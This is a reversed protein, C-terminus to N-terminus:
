HRIKFKLLYKISLMIDELEDTSGDNYQVNINLYDREPHDKLSLHAMSNGKYDTIRMKSMQNFDYTFTEVPMNIFPYDSVMNLKLPYVSLKIKKKGFILTNYESLGVRTFINACLLQKEGEKISANSNLHSVHKRFKINSKFDISFPFAFIELSINEPFGYKISTNLNLDFITKGKSYILAEAKIPMIDGTATVSEEYKSLIFRTKTQPKGDPKFDIILSDSQRQFEIEGNTNQIYYGSHKNMEFMIYTNSEPIYLLKGPLPATKINYLQTIARFADSDEIRQGVRIIEHDAAKIYKRAKEAPFPKNCGATLFILILLLPKTKVTLRCYYNKLFGNLRLAMSNKSNMVTIKM